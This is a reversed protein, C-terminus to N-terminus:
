HPFGKFYPMEPMEYALPKEANGKSFRMAMGPGSPLLM